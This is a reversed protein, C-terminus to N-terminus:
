KARQLNQEVLTETPGTM